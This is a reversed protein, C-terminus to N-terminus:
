LMKGLGIALLLTWCGVPRGSAACIDQVCSEAEVLQSRVTCVLRVLFPIGKQVGEMKFREERNRCATPTDLDGALKLGADVMLM